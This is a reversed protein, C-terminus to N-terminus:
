SFMFLNILYESDNKGIQTTKEEAFSQNLAECHRPACMSYAVTHYAGMNLAAKSTMYSLMSLGPKKAIELSGLISSVNLIKAGNAANKLLPHFAQTVMVAAITNLDFSRKLIDYTTTLSNEMAGGADYTRHM